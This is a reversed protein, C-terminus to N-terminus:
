EQKQAILTIYKSKIFFLMAASFLSRRALIQFGPLTFMCVCLQLSCNAAKWSFESALTKRFSTAEEKPSFTASKGKALALRFRKPRDSGTSM